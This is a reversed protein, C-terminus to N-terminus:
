HKPFLSGVLGGIVLGPLAGLLFGRAVNGATSGTCSSECPGTAIAVGILGTTVGGIVAGVKWHNGQRASTPVSDRSAAWGSPSRLVEVDPSYTSPMAAFPPTGVRQAELRWSGISLGILALALPRLIMNKM